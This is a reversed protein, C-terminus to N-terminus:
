PRVVRCVSAIYLSTKDLNAIVYCEIGNTALEFGVPPARTLHQERVTTTIFSRRVEAKVSSRFYLEKWLGKAVSLKPPPGTASVTM